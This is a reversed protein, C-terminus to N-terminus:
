RIVPQRAVRNPSRSRARPYSGTVAGESASSVLQAYKAMVGHTYRPAPARWAARRKALEQSSCRVDLRRATIDFTIRTEHVVPSQAIQTLDDRYLTIDMSGLPLSKGSFQHLLTHIREALTAGRTMIGVIVISDLDETNRELIEHAIRTLSKEIGEEDLVKAKLKFDSM